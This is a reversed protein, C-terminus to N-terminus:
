EVQNLVEAESDEVTDVHVAEAKISAIVTDDPRDSTIAPNLNLDKLTIVDNADKQSVDITIGEPIDKVAGNVKIMSIDVNLYLKKSELEHRGSFHIPIEWNVKEDTNVIQIQLHQIVASLPDTKVEKIIGMRKENNLEVIIKSRQGSKRIVNEIDTRIFQISTSPVDKGYIVAPIFGQQRSQKWKGQRATATLTEIGM